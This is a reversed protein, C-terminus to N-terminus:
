TSSAKLCKRTYAFFWNLLWKLKIVHRWMEMQMFIDKNCETVHKQDDKNHDDEQM